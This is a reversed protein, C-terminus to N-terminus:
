NKKKTKPFGSLNLIGILIGSLFVSAAFVQYSKYYLGGFKIGMPAEALAPAVFVFYLFGAILSGVLLILGKRKEDALIKLIAEPM